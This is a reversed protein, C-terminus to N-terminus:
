ESSYQERHRSGETNVIDHVRVGLLYLVATSKAGFYLTGRWQKTIVKEPESMPQEM